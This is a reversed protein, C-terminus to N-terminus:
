ALRERVVSAGLITRGSASQRDFTWRLKGTLALLDAVVDCNPAVM